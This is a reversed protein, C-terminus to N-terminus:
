KNMVGAHRLFDTLTSQYEEQDKKVAEDKQKGDKMKATKESPFPDVYINYFPPKGNFEAESLFSKFSKSM